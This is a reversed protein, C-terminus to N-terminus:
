RQIQRSLDQISMNMREQAKETLPPQIGKDLMTELEATWKQIKEELRRLFTRASAMDKHEGYGIAAQLGEIFEPRTREGAGFIDGSRVEHTEVGEGRRTPLLKHDLYDEAHETLYQFGAYDRVSMKGALFPHLAEALAAKKPDFGGAAERAPDEEDERELASYSGGRDEEDFTDGMDDGAQKGGPAKLTVVRAKGSTIPATGNEVLPAPAEGQAIHAEPTFHGVEKLDDHRLKTARIAAEPTAGGIAVNAVIEGLASEWSDVADGTNGRNANKEIRRAASMASGVKKLKGRDAHERIIDVDADDSLRTRELPAEDQGVEVREVGTDFKMASVVGRYMKLWVKSSDLETGVAVGHQRALHNYTDVVDTRSMGLVTTAMLVAERAKEAVAPNLTDPVLDEHAM